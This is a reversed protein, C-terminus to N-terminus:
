DNFIRITPVGTRRDRLDAPGLDWYLLDGESDRKENEVVYVVERGTRHSRFTLGVDCADDYVRGFDVGHGLGLTSAEGAFLGEHSSLSETSVTPPHLIAM